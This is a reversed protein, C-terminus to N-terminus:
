IVDESTLPTGLGGGLMLLLLIQRARHWLVGQQPVKIPIINNKKVLVVIQESGFM